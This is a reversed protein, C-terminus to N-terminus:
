RGTCVHVDLPFLLLKSVWASIAEEEMGLIGRLAQRIESVRLTGDGDLDMTDFVRRLDEKSIIIDNGSSVSKGAFSKLLAARVKDNSEGNNNSNSNDNDDFTMQMITKFETYGITGNGDEDLSELVDLMNKEGGLLGSLASKLEDISIEGNGDLDMSRFIKQLRAESLITSSSGDELNSYKKLIAARFRKQWFRKLKADSNKLVTSAASRGQIWANRQFEPSTMRKNPDPNLLQRMLEKSALSLGNTREDFAFRDLFGPIGCDQIAKVIEEDSAEGTPDFPHSGTLIIYMIIGAAFMDMAPMPQQHQQLFMEPPLYAVTGFSDLSSTDDDADDKNNNAFV